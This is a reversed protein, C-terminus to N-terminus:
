PGFKLDWNVTLSDSSTLSVGTFTQRALMDGGSGTGNTNFVGSEAITATIGTFTKSLVAHSGALSGAPSLSFTSVGSRSSETGQLATQSDAATATGTGIAIAKFNNNTTCQVGTVTNGPNDFMRKVICNEGIQTVTNDTQVYDKINGNADKVTLTIHGLIPYTATAISTSQAVDKPLSIGQVLAIGATLIVVTAILCGLLIPKM